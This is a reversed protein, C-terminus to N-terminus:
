RLRAHSQQAKEIWETLIHLIQANMSRHDKEAAAHCAQHVAAPLRLMLKKADIATSKPRAV